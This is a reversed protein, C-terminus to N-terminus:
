PPSVSCLKLSLKMYVDAAVVYPEVKYTATEEASRGHNVPNILTFLEWACRNDEPRALAMAARIAAHTYQCGNERMGPVYGKIYGPNLASDRKWGLPAYKKWNM